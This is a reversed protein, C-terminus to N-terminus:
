PYICVGLDLGLEAVGKSLEATLTFGADGDIFFGVFLEVTGGSAKMENLASRIPDLQVVLKQVGDTFDGPDKRIMDFTCFSRANIGPLPSGDPSARMEGVTYGISSKRGVKAEIEARSLM